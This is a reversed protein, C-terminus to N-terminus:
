VNVSLVVRRVGLSRAMKELHHPLEREIVLLVESKPGGSLDAQADMVAKYKVCQFLGRQLDDDGSRISKVEVGIRRDGDVIEVDLRDGSPLSGEV